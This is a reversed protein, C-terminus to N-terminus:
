ALDGHSVLDVTNTDYLSATHDRLQFTASSSTKPNTADTVLHNYANPNGVTAGTLSFHLNSFANTLTVSYHATGIDILSANNFSEDVAITGTGNFICFHKALGQVLNTTVAGGESTVAVTNAFPSTLGAGTVTGTFAFTDTLNIGEAEIKSLAM